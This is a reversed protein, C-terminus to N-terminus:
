GNNDMSEGYIWWLKGLITVLRHDELRATASSDPKRSRPDTVPDTFKQPTFLFDPNILLGNNIHYNM